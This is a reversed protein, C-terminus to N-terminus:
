DRQVKQNYNGNILFDQELEDLSFKDLGEIDPNMYNSFYFMRYTNTGKEM